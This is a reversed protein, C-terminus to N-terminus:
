DCRRAPTAWIWHTIRRGEPRAYRGRPRAGGASGIQEISVGLARMAKMTSLCDESELFGSVETVGEAISGLMLSRHSVSKDGPVRVAGSVGPVPEVIYHSM